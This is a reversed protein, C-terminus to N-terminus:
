LEVTFRKDNKEGLAKFNQTRSVQSKGMGMKNKAMHNNHKQQKKGNKERLM